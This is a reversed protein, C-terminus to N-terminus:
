EAVEADPTTLAVADIKALLESLRRAESEAVAHIQEGEAGLSGYARVMKEYHLWMGGLDLLGGGTSGYARAMKEYHLLDFKVSSRCEKVIARLREIEDRAAHAEPVGQADLWDTIDM